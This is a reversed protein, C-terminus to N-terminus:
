LDVSEKPEVTRYIRHDQKQGLAQTELCVKHKPCHCDSQTGRAPRLLRDTHPEPRQATVQVQPNRRAPGLPVSPVNFIGLKPAKKHVFDVIVVRYM